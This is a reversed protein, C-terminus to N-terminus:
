GRSAGSAALVLPRLHKVAVTGHGVLAEDFRRQDFAGKARVEKELAEIEANGLFYQPLQTSDLKARLLKREAQAKEQFGEEIMFRLAEEDTMTGSQLNVDLLANTAVIMRGRLELFAYRDNLEGGLGERVLLSTAYVAWGEAYSGSWLTARLPNLDRRAWWAQTHHGPIAEHAATLTVEYDNNARLYSEIKEPPWTPDVPDVYYTGRWTVERDLMGPALYEAGTGGRKFEPMPLVALTDAPPLALLGKAEVFARLGDLKAASASVLADKAPHDKALADRVRAIEKAQVEPPADAPPAAEGAFLSGHLRRALEWLGARAARFSENARRKVEEASLDTQLAHPFKKAYLAAGLRWDHTARAPLEKELFTQYTRLAEIATARAREAAPDKGTLEALETEFFKIRGVNDKVAQDLHVRSVAGFARRRQDLYRPLAKLQATAAALRQREPGSGHVLDALRAAVVERPDYHTFDDVLRPNWTWEKVDALEVLELAIGDALVAADVREEPSLGDTGLRALAKRQGELEALRAAVARPSLDQVKTDFRHDGMYSALHPKAAFLGDLYVRTLRHLRESPSRTPDAARSSGPVLALLVVTLLARLSTL